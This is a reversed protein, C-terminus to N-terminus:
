RVYESIDNKFKNKNYMWKVFFFNNSVTRAFKYIKSKLSQKNLEKIYEDFDSLYRKQSYMTIDNLQINDSNSLEEESFYQSLKNKIYDSKFNAAGASRVYEFVYTLFMTKAINVNDNDHYEPNDLLWNLVDYKWFVAQSLISEHSTDRSTHMVSTPNDRYVYLYKNICKITKSVCIARLLYLMDERFKKTIDFSLYKCVNERSYLYSWMGNYRSIKFQNHDVADFYIGHTMKENAMIYGFSYMDSENNLILSHMEENYFDKTWIDDADVFAIYKGTAKEIGTNRAVSVGENKKPIYKICRNKESLEKCIKDTGDKSGDNIIVIELDKCPQNLLSNVADAIYKEGNYVPIIVSILPFDNCNSM